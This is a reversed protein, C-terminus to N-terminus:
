RWKSDKLAEQLNNPISVVSLQNVFTMSEKSLRHYSVYNNIPYKSKSNLVPEYSVKPKGRTVRNPLVKLRPEFESNVHSEHLSDTPSHSELMFDTPSSLQNAPVDHSALLVEIQDQVEMQTQDEM